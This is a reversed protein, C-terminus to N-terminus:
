WIGPILRYPVRKAYEAYGPLENRLTKDELATRLIFIPIQAMALILAWLSGLVLATAPAGILMFAYGPHRVYAYPGTDVVKHGRDKQIRVHSSFFNNVSTAWLPVASAVIYVLYAVVYMWIPLPPSWFYKGTDLIGVVFTGIMLFKLIQVLWIDWTKVGPGPKRREKMLDKKGRFVYFMFPLALAYFSIFVWGQIYDFRGAVLVFGASMLAIGGIGQLTSKLVYLATPKM